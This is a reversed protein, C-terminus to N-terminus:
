LTGKCSKGLEKYKLKLYYLTSTYKKHQKMAVHIPIWLSPIFWNTYNGRVKARNQTPKIIVKVKPTLLVAHVNKKPRGVSRKVVESEMAKEMELRTNLTDFDCDVFM